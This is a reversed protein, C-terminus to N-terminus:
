ARAEVRVQAVARRRLVLRRAMELLLLMWTIALVQMMGATPSIGEILTGQMWPFFTGGLSGTASSISVATGPAHPFLSTLIAMVTPYIPGFSMGLVVV